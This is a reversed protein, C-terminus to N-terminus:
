TGRRLLWGGLAVTAATLGIQLTALAAVVPEAGNAELTFVKVTLPQHGPPYLIVATELDRLVFVMTLLFAAALGRRHAPVAISLLRRLYGAGVVRAADLWHPSGQSFAVACGRQAVVSYRALAAVVLIAPGGYIWGLGPRNWTTVVGVALVASPLVFALVQLADLARGVRSGRVVEHGVVVGLATAIAATAAGMTLSTWLSGGLWTGAGSYGGGLVARSFLAVLPAVALAALGLAGIAAPWRWHGLPLVAARRSRAGLVGFSRRGCWRREAFVLGLAVPLIPLSLLLAEGPAFDVGGLRAFVAAPYVDRRLLTAVGLEGFALAFVLIAGLALAPRLAPLLIRFLVAPPPAVVRAAEELAPDVGQAAVAVLSTVLPALALILVGALGGDSFMLEATAVSGLYGQRGFLHFWGLAVLFPPLLAPFAHLLWLIRRAPLDTRGLLLGLPAGIALSGVTVAAALCLSRAFLRWAAVRGLLDPLQGADVLHGVLFALPLGVLIGVGLAAAAPFLAAELRRVARGRPALSM